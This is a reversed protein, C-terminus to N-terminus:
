GEFGGKESEKEKANKASARSVTILARFNDPDTYLVLFKRTEDTNGEARKRVFAGDPAKAMSEFIDTFKKLESQTKINVMNRVNDVAFDGIDAAQNLVEIPKIFARSIFLALVIQSAIVIIGAFIVPIFIKGLADLPSGLSFILKFTLGAPNDVAFFLGGMRREKDVLPVLWKSDKSIDWIESLFYKKEDFVLNLRGQSIVPNGEKNLVVVTDVSKSRVADIAIEKIAETSRSRPADPPMKSLADHLRQKIDAATQQARLTNFKQTEQLQNNLQIFTFVSILFLSSACVSVILGTQLTNRGM